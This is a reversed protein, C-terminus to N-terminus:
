RAKSAIKDVLKETLKKTLYGLGFSIASNVFNGEKEDQETYQNLKNKLFTEPKLQVKLEKWNQRIEKELELEKIRLKMKEAKIDAIRRIKKMM